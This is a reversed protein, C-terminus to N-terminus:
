CASRKDIPYQVRNRLSWELGRGLWRLRPLMWRWVGRIRAFRPLFFHRPSDPQSSSTATAASGQHHSRLSGPVSAPLPVASHSEQVQVVVVSEMELRSGPYRLRVAGREDDFSRPSVQNPRHPPPHELRSEHFLVHVRCHVHAHAHGHRMSQPECPVRQDLRSPSPRPARLVWLVVRWVRMRPSKRPIPAQSVGPDAEQVHVHVHSLVRFHCTPQWPQLPPLLQSPLAPPNQPPLSAAPVSFVDASAHFSLLGHGHDLNPWGEHLFPPSQPWIRCLTPSPLRRKTQELELCLDRVRDDEQGRGHDHGQVHSGPQSGLFLFSARSLGPFPPRPARLFDSGLPFILMWSSKGAVGVTVNPIVTELESRELVSLQLLRGRRNGRM